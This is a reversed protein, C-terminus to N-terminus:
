TFTRHEGQTVSDPEMSGRPRVSGGREAESVGMRERNEEQKEPQEKVPAKALSRGSTCIGANRRGGETRERPWHRACALLM